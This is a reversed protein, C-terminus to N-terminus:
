ICLVTAKNGSTDTDVWLHDLIVSTSGNGLQISEGPVLVKGVGALTGKVLGKSGVYLNGTSGAPNGVFIQGYQDAGGITNTIGQTLITPRAPLAAAALSQPTGAATITVAFSQM